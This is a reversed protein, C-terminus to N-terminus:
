LPPLLVHVFFLLYNYLSVILGNSEIITRILRNGSISRLEDHYGNNYLFFVADYACEFCKCTNVCQIIKEIDEIAISISLAHACSDYKKDSYKIIKAMNNFDYRFKLHGCTMNIMRDQHCILNLKDILYEIRACRIIYWNNFFYKIHKEKRILFSHHMFKEIEQDKFDLIYKVINPRCYGSRIYKSDFVDPVIGGYKKYTDFDLVFKKSVFTMMRFYDESDLFSFIMYNVGKVLFAM